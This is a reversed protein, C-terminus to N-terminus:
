KRIRETEVPESGDSLAAQKELRQTYENVNNHKEWLKQGDTTQM